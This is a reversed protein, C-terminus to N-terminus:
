KANIPNSAAASAVAASKGAVVLAKAGERLNDFRAGLVQNEAKVGHLVEVRGEREDRRGLTVARRALTGSEIVWVQDQGSSTGVASVPLTLRETPDALTARAVAYQ